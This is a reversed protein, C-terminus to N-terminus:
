LCFACHTDSDCYFVKPDDNQLYKWEVVLIIYKYYLAKFLVTYSDGRCFKQLFDNRCVVPRVVFVLLVSYNANTLSESNM